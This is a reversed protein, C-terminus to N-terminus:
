FISIWSIISLLNWIIKGSNDNDSLNTRRQVNTRKEQSIKLKKKQYNNLEQTKNSIKTCCKLWSMHKKLHKLIINYPIQLRNEVFEFLIIIYVVNDQIQWFTHWNNQYNGIKIELNFRNEQQNTYYKRHRLLPRNEFQVAFCLKCMRGCRFTVFM